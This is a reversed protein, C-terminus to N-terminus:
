NPPSHLPHKLSIHSDGDFWELIFYLTQRLLIDETSQLWDSIENNNIAQLLKGNLLLADTRTLKM